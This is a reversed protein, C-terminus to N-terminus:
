CANVMVYLNLIFLITITKAFAEMLHLVMIRTVSLATIENIVNNAVLLVNRAHKVENM